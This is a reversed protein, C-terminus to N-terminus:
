LHMCVDVRGVCDFKFRPCTPTYLTNVELLCHCDITGPYSKLVRCVTVAGLQQKGLFTKLTDSGMFYYM